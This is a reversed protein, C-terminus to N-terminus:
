RVRVKQETVSQGDQEEMIGVGGRGGRGSRQPLATPRWIYSLNGRQHIHNKDLRDVVVGTTGRGSGWVNVLFVFLAAM